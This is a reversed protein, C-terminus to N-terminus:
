AIKTGSPIEGSQLGQIPQINVFFDNALVSSSTILLIFLIINRKM